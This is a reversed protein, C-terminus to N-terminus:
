LAELNYPEVDYQLRRVIAGTGLHWEAVCITRYGADQSLAMLTNDDPTGTFVGWSIRQYPVSANCSELQVSAQVM